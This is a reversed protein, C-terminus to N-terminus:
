KYKQNRMPISIRGKRFYVYSICIDIAVHRQFICRNKGSSAVTQNFEPLCFGPIITFIQLQFFHQSMPDKPFM